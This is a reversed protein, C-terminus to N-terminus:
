DWKGFCIFKVADFVELGDAEELDEAFELGANQCMADSVGPFGEVEKFGGLM